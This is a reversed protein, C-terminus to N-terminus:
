AKKEPEPVPLPAVTAPVTDATVTSCAVPVTELWSWGPPVPSRRIVTYLGFARASVRVETVCFPLTVDTPPLLQVPAVDPTEIGEELPRDIVIGDPVWVMVTGPPTWILLEDALPHWPADKWTGTRTV